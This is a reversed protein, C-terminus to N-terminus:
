RLPIGAAQYVVKVADANSVTRGLKAQEAVYIEARRALEVADPPTASNNSSTASLEVDGQELGETVLRPSRPELGKKADDYGRRYAALQGIQELGSPTKMPCMREINQFKTKRVGAAGRNLPPAVLPFNL